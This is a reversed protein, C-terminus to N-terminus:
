ATKPPDNEEWILACGFRKLVENKEHYNYNNDHSCRDLITRAINFYLNSSETSDIDFGASRFLIRGEHADLDFIACLQILFIVDPKDGYALSRIKRSITEESYGTLEAIKTNQINTVKRLWACYDAFLPRDSDPNRRFNEFKSPPPVSLATTPSHELQNKTKEM